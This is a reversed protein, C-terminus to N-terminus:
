CRHVVRSRRGGDCRNAVIIRWRRSDCPREFDIECLAYAVAEEPPMAAGEAWWAIFDPPDVRTRLSALDQEYAADDPAYRHAGSLRWHTDAAGFLRVACSLDGDM